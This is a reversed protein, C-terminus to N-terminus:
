FLKWLIFITIFVCTWYFMNGFKPEFKPLEIM